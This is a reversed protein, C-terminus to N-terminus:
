HLLRYIDSTAAGLVLLVALSVSGIAFAVPSIAHTKKIIKKTHKRLM